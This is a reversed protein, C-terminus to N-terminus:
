EGRGVIGMELDGYVWNMMEKKLIKQYNVDVNKFM